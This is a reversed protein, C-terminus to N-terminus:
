YIYVTFKDWDCAHSEDDTEFDIIDYEIKGVEEEPDDSNPCVLPASYTSFNNNPSNDFTASGVSRYLTGKYMFQIQGESRNAWTWNIETHDLTTMTKEETTAAGDLHAQTIVIRGHATIDNPNPM